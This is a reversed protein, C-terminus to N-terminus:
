PAVTKISNTKGTGDDASDPNTPDLRLDGDVVFRYQYKGPKLPVSTTWVGAQDKKLPNATAHWNNFQGAVSVTKAKPDAYTFTTGSAMADAAPAPSPMPASSVEIISNGEPSSPLDPDQSWRDGSDIVYKFEYSGPPLPTTLKWKGAGDNKMQWENGAAIKGESADLWRNFNGAVHVTKANADTFRFTTSTEGAGATTKEAGTTGVTIASNEIDNVRKRSPNKPDFKWEGDVVFKYGYQGAELYVTKSWNGSEDKTLAELQWNSFEGAVEVTTANPDTYTFTIATTAVRVAAFLSTAAALFSVINLYRKM